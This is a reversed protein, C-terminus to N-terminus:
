EPGISLDGDANASSWQWDRAQKVLGAKVPNNHIYEVAARYHGEDRMFRDWYDEQWLKGNRGLFRNIRTATYRKWTEVTKGMTHSSVFHAMVHVHNPMVVFAHLVYRKGHFHRWADLVVKAAEPRQLVCSGHGADLWEEVRRRFEADADEHQQVDHRLRELVTAPLSDALRYTISQITKSKEFHPLYGRHHWGGDASSAPPHQPM